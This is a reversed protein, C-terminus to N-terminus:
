EDYAGHSFYIYLYSSLFFSLFHSCCGGHPVAPNHQPGPKELTHFGLEKYAMDPNDALDLRYRVTAKITPYPRTTM